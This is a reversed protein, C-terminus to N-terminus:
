RLFLVVVGAVSVLTGALIRPTIREHHFRSSILITLVPYFATISAAVGADTHKLALLSLTVGLFPGCFAGAVMTLTAVRDRLVRFSARAERGAAAMLWMAVTATTVRIVTASLADLGDRLALKSIVYGVAQGVASLVGAVVGVRWSGEPHAPEAHARGYLVWALGGLTLAMGVLALPGLTEHLVPWALLATFVPALSGLLAARGPGLIVLARFYFTDGFVFGVLGSLALWGVQAPTAWTPWPSGRLLLLSGALFVAAVAVRLRNLVWSGMRHGAAAFFNSGCAWCVATGLAALEGAFRM